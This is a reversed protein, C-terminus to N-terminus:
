YTRWGKANGPTFFTVEPGDYAPFAANDRLGEVELIPGDCCGCSGVIVGLERCLAHIKEAAQELEAQTM